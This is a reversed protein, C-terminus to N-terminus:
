YRWSRSLLTSQYWKNSSDRVLVSYPDEDLIAFMLLSTSVTFPLFFLSICFIILYYPDTGLKGGHPMCAESHSFFLYLLLDCGRLEEIDIEREVFFM